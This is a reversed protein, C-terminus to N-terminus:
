PSGRPANLSNSQAVIRGCECESADGHRLEVIECSPLLKQSSRSAGETRLFGHCARPARYSFGLDCKDRAIQPPRCLHEVSRPRREFLVAVFHVTCMCAMKLNPAM